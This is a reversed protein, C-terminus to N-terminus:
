EYGPRLGSALATVTISGTTPLTQATLKVYCLEPMTGQDYICRRIEVDNTLIFFTTGLLVPLTLGAQLISLGSAGVGSYIQCQVTADLTNVVRIRLEQFIHCDIVIGSQGATAVIAGNAISSYTNTTLPIHATTDRISLANILTYEQEVIPM